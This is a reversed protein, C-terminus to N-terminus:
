RKEFHDPAIRDGSQEALEAIEIQAELAEVIKGPASAVGAIGVIRAVAAVVERIRAPDINLDRAVGENM